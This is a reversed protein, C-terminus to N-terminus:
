RRGPLRCALSRMRPWLSGVCVCARARACSRARVQNYYYLVVNKGSDLLSKLSVTSGGVAPLDFAPAADGVDVVPKKGAMASRPTAASLLQARACSRRACLLTHSLDRDLARAFLRWWRVTLALRESARERACELAM